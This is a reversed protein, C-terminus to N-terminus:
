GKRRKEIRWKKWCWLLLNSTNRIEREADEELLQKDQKSMRINVQVDKAM